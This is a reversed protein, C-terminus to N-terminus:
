FIRANSMWRALAGRTAQQGLFPRHPDLGAQELCSLLHTTRRDLSTTGEGALDLLGGALVECVLQGYSRGDEPSFALGVGPAVAGTLAPCLRKISCSVTRYLRRLAEGARELEPITIYMVASDARDYMSTTAGIKFDAILSGGAALELLTSTFAEACDSTLSWYLRAVNGLKFLDEGSSFYIFGPSVHPRCMPLRVAPASSAGLGLVDNRAFWVEIGNKSMQIYGGEESELRWGHELVTRDVALELLSDRLGESGGLQRWANAVLPKPSGACYFRAYLIEELTERTPATNHSALNSLPIGFWSFSGSRDYDFANALEELTGCSTTM